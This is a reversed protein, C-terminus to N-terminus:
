ELRGRYLRTKGLTQGETMRKPSKPITGVLEVAGVLMDSLDSENSCLRM